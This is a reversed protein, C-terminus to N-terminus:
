VWRQSLLQSITNIDKHTKTTRQIAPAYTDVSSLSHGTIEVIQKRTFGAKRLQKMKQKEAESIKRRGKNLGLKKRANTVSTRDIELTEAVQDVTAKPNEQYCAAVQDLTSQSIM